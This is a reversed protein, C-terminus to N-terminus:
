NKILKQTSTNNNNDTIKVIYIGNQLDSIPYNDNENKPEFTKILQGALSIIQVQKTPLNINFYKQSPNPYLTINQIENQNSNMTPAQNGIIKFGGPEISVQTVLTPVNIISNDM